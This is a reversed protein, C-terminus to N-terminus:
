TVTEQLNGLYWIVSLPKKGRGESGILWSTTHRSTPSPSSFFLAWTRCSWRAARGCSLGAGEQRGRGTLGETLSCTGPTPWHTVSRPPLSGSIDVKSGAAGSPLWTLQRISVRDSKNNVRDRSELAGRGYLLDCAWRLFVIQFIVM